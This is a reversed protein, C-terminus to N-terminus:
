VSTTIEEARTGQTTTTMKPTNAMSQADRVPCFRASYM